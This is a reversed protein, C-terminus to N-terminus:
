MGRGIAEGMQKMGGFKALTDEEGFAQKDKACSADSLSSQNDLGHLTAKSNEIKRGDQVYFRRVESLDGEDTGDVTIFQTVITFPKLTNVDYQSGPGYFSRAGMRYSNYDCGPMDCITKCEAGECRYLSDVACPHATFATAQKNAEWLDMEACCSGYKGGM